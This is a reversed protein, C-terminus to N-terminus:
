PPSAPSRPSSVPPWSRPAPARSAPGAGPETGVPRAGVAAVGGEVDWVGALVGDGVPPSVLAPSAGGRHPHGGQEPLGFDGGPGVPLVGGLLEAPGGGAGVGGGAVGDDIAAGAGLYPVALGEGVGGGCCRRRARGWGGRGEGRRGGRRGRSEARGARGWTALGRGLLGRPATRPPAVATPLAEEHKRQPAAETRRPRPRLVAVAVEARSLYTAAGDGPM